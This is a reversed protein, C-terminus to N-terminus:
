LLAAIKIQDHDYSNKKEAVQSRVTSGRELLLPPYFKEGPAFDDNLLAKVADYGIFFNDFDVASLSPTYCLCCEDDNRVIVRVEEPLGVSRNFSGSPYYGNDIFPVDLLLGDFHEKEWFRHLNEPLADLAPCLEPVPPLGAARIAQRVGSVVPHEPEHLYKSVLAIKRCRCSCLHNVALEAASSMDKTLRLWNKIVEAQRRSEWTSTNILATRCGLSRIAPYLSGYWFGLLLVRSDGSLCKLQGPDIDEQRNTPSVAITEVRSNLEHAAQLAGRFVERMMCAPGFRYNLYDPCPLIFSIPPTQRLERVFTGKKQTRTVLGDRELRELAIRLTNRSVGLEYALETECPLRSGPAYTGDNVSRFLTEYLNQSKYVSRM